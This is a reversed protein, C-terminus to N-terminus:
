VKQIFCTNEADTQQYKNIMYTTQNTIPELNEMSTQQYKDVMNYINQKIIPEQNEISTQQYKAVMYVNQKTIHELNETSTQQYKDVLLLNQEMLYDTSKRPKDDGQKMKTKRLRLVIPERCDWFSIDSGVPNLKLGLGSVLNDNFESLFSCSSSQNNEIKFTSQLVSKLKNM